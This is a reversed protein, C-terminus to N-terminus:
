DFNFLLNKQCSTHRAVVAPCSFVARKRFSRVRFGFLGSPFPSKQSENSAFSAVAATDYVALRWSSMRFVFVDVAARVGRIWSRSRGGDGQELRSSGTTYERVPPREKMCDYVSQSTIFFLPRTRARAVASPLTNM